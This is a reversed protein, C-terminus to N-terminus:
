RARRRARRGAAAALTMALVALAGAAHHAGAGVACGASEASAPEGQEGQEGQGSGSAGPEGPAVPPEATPAADPTPSAGDPAAADRPAAADPGGSDPAGADPPAGAVIGPNARIFQQIATFAPKQRYDAPFARAPPATRNARLLGFGDIPCTAQDPKCDLIEYFFTNTWWPRLLQEEMVRRAYTAQKGEDTADGIQKAQYGTETIWVEGAYREEDLLERLSIRTFAFRRKELSNLFNDGDLVTTGTEPWGSYIHHSLIDFSARARQLVPRLFVDFDGVHALDPGVVLCDACAARVAAAGPVLIKDIYPGSGAPTEWFQDLNPENWIGFHRVGKARYHAVAARVFTTWEASTAPEDNRPNGDSRSRPVRPVWAPTYGLSLYVKLGRTNAQDVVRDVAAYDFTGSSPNMSVWDGDVRIWGVGLAKTADLLESSPVHVNVGLDNGGLAARARGPALTLAVAALAAAVATTRGAM